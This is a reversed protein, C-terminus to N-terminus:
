RHRRKEELEANMKQQLPESEDCLKEDSFHARKPIQLSFKRMMGATDRKMAGYSGHSGKRPLSRRMSRLSENNLLLTIGNSSTVPSKLENSDNNNATRLKVADTTSDNNKFHTNGTQTEGVAAADSPMDQQQEQDANNNEDAARTVDDPVPPTRITVSQKHNLTRCQHATHTNTPTSPESEDLREIQLVDTAAATAAPSILTMMSVYESSPTVPSEMPPLLIDTDKFDMEASTVSFLALSKTNSKKAM